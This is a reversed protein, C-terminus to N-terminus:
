SNSRQIDSSSLSCDMPAFGGPMEIPASRAGVDVLLSRTWESSGGRRLGHHVLGDTNLRMATGYVYM